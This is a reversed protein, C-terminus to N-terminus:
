SSSEDAAVRDALSAMVKEQISPNERLMRRFSQGDIVLAVVPSTAVVTATRPRNGVLAIEGFFAGEGLESIVRGDRRVEVSGEVLVFFEYGSAGERIMEKGERLDIEPALVAIKRLDARSLGSFLPVSKLLELKQDKRLLAM